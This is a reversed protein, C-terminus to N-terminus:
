EDDPNKKNNLEEQNMILLYRNTYDSIWENDHLTIQIYYIKKKLYPNLKLDIGIITIHNNFNAKIKLIM